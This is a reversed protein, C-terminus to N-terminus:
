RTSGRGEARTRTKLFDRYNSFRKQPLLLGSELNAYDILYRKDITLNQLIRWNYHNNM